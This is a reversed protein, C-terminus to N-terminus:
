AQILAQIMPWASLVRGSVQHGTVPHHTHRVSCQGLRDSVIRGLRGSDMEIPCAYEDQRQWRPELKGLMRLLGHTAVPRNERDLCTLVRFTVLSQDALDAIEPHNILRPQVLLPMTTGAVRLRELLADLDIDTGDVTRYREPAIRQFMLAGRAGRGRVPKCFLDRDLLDRSAPMSLTGHKSVMLTPVVPLTRHSSPPFVKSVAPLTVAASTLTLLPAFISTTSLLEPLVVLKRWLKQRLGREKGTIVADAIVPEKM